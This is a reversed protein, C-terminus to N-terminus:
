KKTISELLPELEHLGTPNSEEIRLIYDYCIQLPDDVNELNPLAPAAGKRLPNERLASELQVPDRGRARPQVNEKSTEWAPAEDEAGM